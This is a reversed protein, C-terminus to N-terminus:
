KSLYRLIHKAAACDSQTANSMRRAIRHVAYTIDPRSSISLWQLQGAIRQHKRMDVVPAMNDIENEKKTMCPTAVGNCERLGNQDLLQEIYTVQSVDGREIALSLYVTLPTARIDFDAALAELM